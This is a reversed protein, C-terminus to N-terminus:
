MGSAHASRACGDVLCLGGGFVPDAPDFVLVGARFEPRVAAVLKELLGSPGAPQEAAAGAAPAQGAPRSM